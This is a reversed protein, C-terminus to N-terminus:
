RTGIRPVRSAVQAAQATLKSLIAQQQEKQRALERELDQVRDIVGQNLRLVETRRRMVDWSAVVAALGVTIIEIM